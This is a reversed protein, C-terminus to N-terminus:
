VERDARMKCWDNVASRVVESKGAIGFESIKAPYLM